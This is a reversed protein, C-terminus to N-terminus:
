TNTEITLHEHDHCTDQGKTRNENFHIENKGAKPVVFEIIDISKHQQNKNNECQNGEAHRDNARIEQEVRFVIVPVPGSEKGRARRCQIDKDIGNIEIKELRAHRAKQM